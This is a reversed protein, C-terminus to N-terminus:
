SLASYMLGVIEIQGLGIVLLVVDTPMVIFEVNREM